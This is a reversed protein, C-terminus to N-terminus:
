NRHSETTQQALYRQSGATPRYQQAPMHDLSWFTEVLADTHHVQHAEKLDGEEDCGESRRSSTILLMPSQHTLDRERSQRGPTEQQQM